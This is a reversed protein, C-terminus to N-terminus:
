TRDCTGSATSVATIKEHYKRAANQNLFLNMCILRKCFSSKREFDLCAFFKVAPNYQINRLYFKSRLASNPHFSWKALPMMQHEKVRKYCAITHISYASIKKVDVLDPTKM